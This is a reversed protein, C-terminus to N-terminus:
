EKSSYDVTGDQAVKVEWYVPTFMATDFVWFRYKAGSEGFEFSPAVFKEAPIQGPKLLVHGDPKELLVGRRVACMRLFLHAFEAVPLHGSPTGIGLGRMIKAFDAKNGCTLVEDKGVMYVVEGALGTSQPMVSIAHYGPVSISSDVAVSAGDFLSSKSLRENVINLADQSSFSTSHSRSKEMNKKNCSAQAALLLIALLGVKM